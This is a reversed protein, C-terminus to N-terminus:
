SSKELTMLFFDSILMNEQLTHCHHCRRCQLVLTVAGGSSGRRWAVGDMRRARTGMPAFVLMAMERILTCREVVARWALFPLVRGVGTGCGKTAAFSPPVHLSTTTVWCVVAHTTHLDSVYCWHFVTESTNCGDSHYLLFM